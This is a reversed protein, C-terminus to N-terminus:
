AGIDYGGQHDTGPRLVGGLCSGARATMIDIDAPVLVHQQAPNSMPPAQRFPARNVGSYLVTLGAIFFILAWLLYKGLSM